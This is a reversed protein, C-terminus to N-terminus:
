AAAPPLAARGEARAHLLARAATGIGAVLFAGFLALTTGDPAILSQKRLAQQALTLVFGLHTAGACAVLRVRTRESLRTRLLLFGLLPLVQMAHMGVFHAPRMDGGEVSWNVFPLGPGGDPVGFTHSGRVPVRQGQALQARQEANPAVMFFGTGLGVLTVLMGLRVSWAFGADPLRQRLLVVALALSAGFLVMITVGMSATVLSNFPGDFNFHSREGRWAQVSICVMEIVLAWGILHGVRRVLRPREEVFGLLWAATFCYVASSIFFKTPKIWIPIGLLQRPDLAIGAATVAAFGALVVALVVLLRHTRLARQLGARLAGTSAEQSATM